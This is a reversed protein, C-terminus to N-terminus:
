PDTRGFWFINNAQLAPLFARAAEISLACNADVMVTIDSGFRKAFRRLGKSTRKLDPM